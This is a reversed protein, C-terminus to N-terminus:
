EGEQEIILKLHERGRKLLSRVTSDKIGTLASIEGTAYGEYYYMYIVVREKEKLRLLKRKTEDISPESEAADSEEIEKNHQWWHNLHNKCLNSAVKSLWAKEHQTDEFVGDWEMLKIYTNQTMDEADSHNKLYMLCLRYISEVTRDYIIKLQKKDLSNGETNQKIYYYCIVIVFHQM